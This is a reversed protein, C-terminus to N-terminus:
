PSIILSLSAGLAAQLAAKAAKTGATRLQSETQDGSTDLSIHVGVSGGSELRIMLHLKDRQMDVNFRSIKAKTAEETM